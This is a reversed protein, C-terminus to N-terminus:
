MENYFTDREVAKLSLDTAMKRLETETLSLNDGGAMTYLKTTDNVTGDIDDAGYLLALQSNEVGLSPPYAKLHPINHLFLRSIAMVRLTTTIACEKGNTLSNNACRYKLPIFTTFGGTEYQLERLSNLHSIIDEGSEIHGYLMTCCSQIGSKHLQRHFELWEEGSAKDPCIIKRIEPNFIEAGGGTISSMGSQKMIEIGEKFSLGSKQCAYIHEIASFAKIAVKPYSTHLHSVMQAYSEVTADPHVGGVLHIETISPNYREKAYELVKDINMNWGESSHLPKRFSCFKCNYVCINTPEIHFNRNYFVKEGSIERKKELAMDGLLALPANNYLYLADATSLPQKSYYREVINEIKTEKIGKLLPKPIM